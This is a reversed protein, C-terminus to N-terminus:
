AEAEIDLFLDLLEDEVQERASADSERWRDILGSLREHLRGELTPLLRLARRVVASSPEAPEASGSRRTSADPLELAVTKERGDKGQGATVRVVGDLDYTIRFGVPTGAPAPDLEFDFDGVFVNQSCRRAEGQYVEVHVSPQGDVMTYFEESRSAPLATNRCLVPVFTDPKDDLRFEDADGFARIGLSHAAVDVLVRGCAQGTLMGAQIAAGLGVALDVDIEEHIDADFADAILSRILPIRTSGGVLCIRGIREDPRLAADDVARRALAITRELQAMIAQEFERRTVTCRLHIADGDVTAVFEERVEVELESSLGIKATEAARELRAMGAADLESVGQERLQAVFRDVLVRDFDDGGLESDGATARVERIEGFVELVSVDFTGGGLDYVLMLEAADPSESHIQDYVLSAATPENLLRLVHFGALEGAALTARRQADNFYAPVTIVVDRVREGTTTEAGRALTRLIEASVEEATVQRDALVIPESRGIRRKVSRVVRDPHLLALNRAERGVVVRGDPMYLVTSPVITHGDIALARPRKDVIRAIASNTTGLDIGFATM